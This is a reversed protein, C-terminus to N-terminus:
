KLVGTVTFAIKSASYYKIFCFDTNKYPYQSKIKSKM